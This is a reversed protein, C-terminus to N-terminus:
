EKKPKLVIKEYDIDGGRERQRYYEDWDVNLDYFYENEPLSVEAGCHPCLVTLVKDYDSDEYEVTGEKGCKYCEINLM